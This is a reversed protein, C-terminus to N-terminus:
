LREIEAPSLGTAQTIQSVDLGMMKLNRAIEVKGKVLGKAEGLVEGKKHAEEIDTAQDHLFRQHAEDLARLRADRNFQQFKDYAQGVVPQDQLLATMEVERKPHSYYFFNIWAGLASPLKKIRDIKEKAAELIHMQLLDTFVVSPDAKATLRFSNHVGALQPFMEFTTVAIAIVAKLEGYTDGLVLQGGFARSGYYTMRPAFAARETTQFEVAFIGGREDTAKVDLITYKDAVFTQPNFPNRMEVSKAPQQGDSELVANLFHLLLPENGPSGFLFHVFTDRYAPVFKNSKENSAAENM